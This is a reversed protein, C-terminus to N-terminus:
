LEYKDKEEWGDEVIRILAKEISYNVRVKLQEGWRDSYFFCVTRNEVVSLMKMWKEHKKQKKQCVCVIKEDSLKGQVGGAEYVM